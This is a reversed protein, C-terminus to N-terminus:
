PDRLDRGTLNLFVTELSPQVTRFGRLGPIRALSRLAQTPDAMSFAEEGSEGTAIVKHEGGHEALIEGVSGLAILKGHDVIAVRDSIQEVEAMYHSTYIITCGQEKLSVVQELIANRSQPDVGVTPEDLLLLKPQHLVAAALNVRRKMGGSYTNLRDNQRDSLGVFDIAWAVRSRLTEGTLGYLRGFFELNERASLDMYLAISQPAVGIRRRNAFPSQHGKDGIQIRGSDPKLLGAILNVLTSKGAGNAGLLGLIEGERVHLSLCDVAKTSGYSHTLENLYLM